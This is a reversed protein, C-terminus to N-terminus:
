PDFDELCPDWARYDDLEDEEAYLELQDDAVSDASVELLELLARARAEPVSPDCKPTGDEEVLYEPIQSGRPGYSRHYQVAAEGALNQILNTFAGLPVPTAGVQVHTRGAEGMVMAMLAQLTEPRLLTAILQAAAPVGTATTSAPATAPAAPEQAAAAKGLAGLAAGGIMGVPGLAAGALAGQVAGPLVTQAVRALDQGAVQASECFEALHAPHDAGVHQELYLELVEAPLSAYEPALLARLSRYDDHADLAWGGEGIGVADAYCSWHFM